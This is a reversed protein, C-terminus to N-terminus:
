QAEAMLSVAVLVLIVIGESIDVDWEVFSFIIFFGLWWTSFSLLMSFLDTIDLNLLTSYTNSILVIDILYLKVSNTSHLSQFCFISVWTRRTVQISVFVSWM